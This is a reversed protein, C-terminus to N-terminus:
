NEQSGRVFGAARTALDTIATGAQDRKEVILRKAADIDASIKGLGTQWGESAGEKTSQYFAKAKDLYATALEGTADMKEALQAQLLAAHAEAQAYRMQLLKIEDTDLIAQKYELLRAETTVTLAEIKARAESPMEAIADRASAIDDSMAQMQAKAGTAASEKAKSVWSQADDLAQRAREPSQEIELAIQARLLAAKAQVLDIRTSLADLWNQQVAETSASTEQAFVTSAPALAFGAGLGVLMTTAILTKKM